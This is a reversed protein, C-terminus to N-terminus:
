ECKMPHRERSRSQLSPGLLRASTAFRHQDFHARSTLLVAVLEDQSSGHGHATDITTLIKWNRLSVTIFAAAFPLRRGSFLFRRNRDLANCSFRRGAHFLFKSQFGKVLSISFSLTDWCSSNRRGLVVTPNRPAHRAHFCDSYSVTACPITDSYGLVNLCCLLCGFMLCTPIDLATVTSRVVRQLHFRPLFQARREPDLAECFRHNSNDALEDPAKFYGM